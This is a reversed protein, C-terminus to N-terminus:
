ITDQPATSAEEMKEDVALGLDAFADKFWSATELVVRNKEEAEEQHTRLTGTDLDWRCNAMESVQTPCCSARILEILFTEPMGQDKLVNGIYSPVNTNMMLIM